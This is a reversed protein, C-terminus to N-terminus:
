ASRLRLSAVVHGVTVAALSVQELPVIPMYRPLPPRGSGQLRSENWNRSHMPPKLSPRVEPLEDVGELQEELQEEVWRTVLVKPNGPSADPDERDLQAIGHYVLITAVLLVLTVLWIRLLPHKTATKMASLESKAFASGMRAKQRMYDPVPRLTKPAPGM